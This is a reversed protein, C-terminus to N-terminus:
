KNLSKRSASTSDEESATPLTVDFENKLEGVEFLQVKGTDTGLIVRDESLWALCLYNSPEAKMFAFQKLHGESYRFLKYLKEGAICLQTNDQPNFSIQM